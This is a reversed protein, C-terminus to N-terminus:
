DHMCYYDVDAWAARPKSGGFFGVVRVADEDGRKPWVSQRQEERFPLPTTKTIGVAGKRLWRLKEQVLAVYPLVLLEKKEPNEIVKKLLLIDAVFSKGGGSSLTFTIM